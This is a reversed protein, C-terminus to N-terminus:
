VAAPRRAVGPGRCMVGSATLRESQPNKRRAKNRADVIKM